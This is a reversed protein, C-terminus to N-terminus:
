ARGRQDLSFGVAPRNNEDITSRANRLDQGTVGACGQARPLFEHRRVRRCGPPDGHRRPGQRRVTQLLAEQTGAPGAEVIKLELIATNRIIEKARAVDTVGPLQVLIEDNSQGYLSINPEAVGLENVRRDITERAQTVAQDRMTVAINPKMTFDYAGGRGLQPRLQRRRRITPWGRSSPTRRPRFVKSTSRRRHRSACDLQRPIGATKLAERLQESTTTTHIKLAEDTQVRLVLHVGGKLDLGLKLQKAALWGPLPM